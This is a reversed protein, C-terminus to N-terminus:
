PWPPAPTQLHLAIALPASARYLSASRAVAVGNHHITCWSGHNVLGDPLNEFVFSFWYYGSTPATFIGSSINLGGGM